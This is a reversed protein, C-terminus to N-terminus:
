QNKKQRSHIHYVAFIFRAQASVEKDYILEEPIKGFFPEDLGFIFQADSPNKSEFDEFESKKQNRLDSKRSM